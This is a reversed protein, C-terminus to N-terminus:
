PYGTRYFRQPASNSDILRFTGSLDTTAAGLPQWNTTQLDPVFQIHYVRGFIDQGTIANSGHGFPTITLHPAGGNDVRVVTIAKATFGGSANARASLKYVGLPVNSWVLSYPPTTLDRMKVGNTYFAVNTIFNILSLLIYASLAGIGGVVVAMASLVLVRRDTSFDALNERVRETTGHGATIAPATLNSQM